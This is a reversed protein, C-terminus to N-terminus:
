SFLMRWQQCNVSGRYDKSGNLLLYPVIHGLFMLTGHAPSQPIMRNPVPDLEFAQVIADNAHFHSLPMLKESSLDLDSKAHACANRIVRVLNIDKFTNEGYIGLAHAIVNRAYFNGIIGERERDGDFLKQHLTQDDDPIQFYSKIAVAVSYELLGASVLIIARTATPDIGTYTQAELDHIKSVIEIADPVVRIRRRLESLAQSRPSM